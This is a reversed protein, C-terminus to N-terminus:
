QPVQDLQTALLNDLYRQKFTRPEQPCRRNNKDRGPLQPIQASEDKPELTKKPEEPSSRFKKGGTYM